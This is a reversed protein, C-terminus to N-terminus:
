PQQQQWVSDMTIPVFGRAGRPRKPRNAQPTPATFPPSETTPRVSLELERSAAAAARRELRWAYLATILSFLLGFVSWLLVLRLGLVDGGHFLDMAVGPLFAGLAYGLINYFFMSIGSALTRLNPSVADIQIGTLPPLM